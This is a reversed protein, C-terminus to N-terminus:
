FRTVYPDGSRMAFFEDHLLRVRKYMETATAVTQGGKAEVFRVVARTALEIRKDDQIYEHCVDCAAWGNTSGWVFIEDGPVIAQEFSDAPHM